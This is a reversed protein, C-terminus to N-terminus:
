RKTGPQMLWVGCWRRGGAEMSTEAACKFAEFICKVKCQARRCCHQQAGACCADCAAPSHCIWPCCCQESESGSCILTDEICLCVKNNQQPQMAAKGKGHGKAPAPQVAHNAKAKKKRKNVDHM